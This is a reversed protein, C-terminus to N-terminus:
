LKMELCVDDPLYKKYDFNEAVVKKFFKENKFYQYFEAMHPKIRSKIKDKKEDAKKLRDEYDNILILDMNYLLEDSYVYNILEEDVVFELQNSILKIVKPSSSYNWVTWKKIAIENTENNFKIKSDNSFKEIVDNFDISPLNIKFLDVDIAYIGSQTVDTNTLIYLYSLKYKEELKRVYIDKWFETYIYRYKSM